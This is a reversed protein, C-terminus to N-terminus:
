MLSYPDVDLAVQVGKPEFGELAEGIAAPSAGAPLKVLLHRRWKGQIRELPCDTPGLVQAEIKAGEIEAAAAESAKIVEARNEGSLVINVLRVFPPYGAEEREHKVAEYFRVYDHTKACDVAVHQANFTQIVVEGPSTGRGARGSVQSLLQFTRETSRFDPINLGIDAAIVGVLTVNPFDLGKAVMQTGVLIDIDGSRFRTLVDELAGKKRAVDRDLRAVQAEPFAIQVAEEVKETGAGFPNLRTGRCQPCEDPPTTSYGCHHCRLRRTSRSYSLAVACNSCMFQQGCDRCILFPSYARRNLFLITQEKRELSREIRQALAEALISPRGIKYGITLDEVFVTPLKASAAREPLSLLTLREQEAEYFSEVSPTASGLVLPAKHRESLFQAVRKAHHRPSSEQKYSAEHEEDLIILGVDSMPSFLASRAGLVVAAEGRRIRTWGELREKAPLESHVIIVTKGFRERLQAIAQTALAIEPVVYLVQRGMKLAEAAARLYVETKGSGTIGFLLFSRSERNHISDSISEIALQQYPNPHPAERNMGLTREDALELYGGDILSKVTTETVGSMAKIESLSLLTKEVAQLRMLTLAQAPKKRGQEKLFREVKDADATLRYLGESKRREAFPQLELTHRVLGKSRLLKLTRVSSAPLKKTKGELLSGGQEQLVRLVERQAATVPLESEHGTLEWKSVLRDRAGPPTALSLAVPVPSLYEEAVFRVLDLVVPPLSLGEVRGLVSRLSQVPFGLEEESIERVALAYGLASRGGLPVFFADGPRAEEDFRYTYIARAGGSRADLAVDVVKLVEVAPATGV